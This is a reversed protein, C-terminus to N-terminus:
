EYNAEKTRLDVILLSSNLMFGVKGEAPNSWIGEGRLKYEKQPGWPNKKFKKVEKRNNNIVKLDEIRMVGMNVVEKKRVVKKDKTHLAKFKEITMEKGNIVIKEMYEGGKM